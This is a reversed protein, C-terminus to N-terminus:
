LAPWTASQSLLAEVARGLCDRPLIILMKPATFQLSVAGTARNSTGVRGDPTFTLGGIPWHLGDSVGEVLGMPFLSVREGEELDLDISPPALFAIDTDGLLVCRHDCNRVLANFCALQHDLRAGSFGMGIVLPARISHLAKDFDTRNQDFVVHLRDQPIGEVGAGELSDMDGIVAEPMVGYELCHLAGGDAAVVRPALRRCTDLDTKGVLGAGVLTIPELSHVIAESM